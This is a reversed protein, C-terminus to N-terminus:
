MFQFLKFLFLYMDTYPIGNLCARKGLKCVKLVPDYRENSNTEIKKKNENNYGKIILLHFIYRM